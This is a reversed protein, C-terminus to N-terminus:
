QLDLENALDGITQNLLFDNIQKSLGRWKKCFPCPNEDSCDVFDFLCSNTKIDEQMSNILEYISLDNMKHALKFGGGRGKSSEIYGSRALRQLIKAAYHKPINENKAIDQAKCFKGNGERALYVISRVAYGATKSLQM